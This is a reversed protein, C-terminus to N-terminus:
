NSFITALAYFCLVTSCLFVALRLLVGVARSVDYSLFKDVFPIKLLLWLAGIGVAISIVVEFTHWGKVKLAQYWEQFGNM